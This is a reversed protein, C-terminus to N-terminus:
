APAPAPAPTRHPIAVLAIIAAALGAAGALLFAGAPGTTDALAGGTAAGISTGIASATALWAFAETVTGAPAADDVMAYASALVPAIMSGALTIVVALAVISGTAVGLAAHGAGLLALLMAFGRGGGAGGGRRAAVIGGLLSGVGWLGLLTGAFAPHGLSGAAATVGVETAGFVLGAGAMCGVLMRMAPSAMVNGAARGTREAPRWRRSAPSLAFVTTAAMLVLGAAVLATGTGWLSGVALALPPGSVWTLETAAADVAYMRRLQGPFLAPILARLCASIPPTALGLAAALALVIPLPSGVPLAGLSCLAAAAVAAAAILVRTQGRRDALRGLAPGGVGQGIALAGAATGAAAYSGTLHQVHVLTGITFTALPLRAVVATVFLSKTMGKREDDVPALCLDLAAM